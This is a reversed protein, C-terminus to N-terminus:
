TRPGVPLAFATAAPHRGRPRCWPPFFRAGREPTLLGTPDKICMFDVGLKVLERRARRLVCRHAGPEGHVDDMANVKM